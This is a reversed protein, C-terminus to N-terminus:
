APPQFVVVLTVCKSNSRWPHIELDTAPNAFYFFGFFFWLRILWVRWNKCDLVPPFIETRSGSSPSETRHRDLVVSLLVVDNWVAIFYCLFRVKLDKSRRFAKSCVKCVYAKEEKHVLLHMRLTRRTSLEMPCHPCRYKVSRHMDMHVNLRYKSKFSYIAYSWM